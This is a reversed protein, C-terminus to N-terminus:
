NFYPEGDKLYGVKKGVEEDKTVEYIVGNEENNTYYTIDDIEIEFLEEEEDQQEEEKQEKKEEIQEEKDIILEEEKTEEELEDEEEEEEEEEEEDVSEENIVLTINEKRIEPLNKIKLSNLELKMKFLEDKLDLINDENKKNFELLTGQLSTIKNDQIEHRSHLDRIEKYVPKIEDQITGKICSIIESLNFNNNEANKEEKIAIKEEKVLAKEEKVLAKEEKIVAKEEKIVANEEKVVVKEEVKEKKSSKNAVNMILNYTEEYLNYKESYDVLLMNVRKEVVDNVENLLPAIDLKVINNM